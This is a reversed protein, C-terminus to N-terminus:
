QEQKFDSFWVSLNRDQTYIYNVNLTIENEQEISSNVTNEGPQVM